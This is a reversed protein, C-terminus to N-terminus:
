EEKMTRSYNHLNERDQLVITRDRATAASGVVGKAMWREHQGSEADSDCM